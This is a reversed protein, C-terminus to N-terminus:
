VIIDVQRIKENNVTHDSHFVIEDTTAIKKNANVDQHDISELRKNDREDKEEKELHRDFRRDQGRQQKDGLQKVKISSPAPFLIRQIKFNEVM